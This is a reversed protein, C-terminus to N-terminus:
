ALEAATPPDAGPRSATIAAARNARRVVDAWDDLSLAALAERRDAGLLDRRGLGDLLAAGFVDGAGITDAVEVREGPVTVTGRTTTCRAGYEGLTVVVATAGLDLLRSVADDLSADPRWALVDEDSAKVLDSAAALAEIRAADVPAATPRANIDFSITARPRLRAVATAVVDAGPPLVAALSGVHLHTIPASLDAGPLESGIAFRYSAAGSEDLRAVATSTRPLVRPDAALEVGAERLHRDILEGYEDGAYGTLLRVQHGLRALAVAVNAPSGGPLVRDPEGPRIVIDVLSEGVVLISTM